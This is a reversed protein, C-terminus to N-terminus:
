CFVYCFARNGHLGRRENRNPNRNKPQTGIPREFVLMAYSLTVVSVVFLFLLTRDGGEEINVYRAHSTGALVEDLLLIEPWNPLSRSQGCRGEGDILRICCCMNREDRSGAM